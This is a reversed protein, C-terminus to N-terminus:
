AAPGSVLAVLAMGLAMRVATMDNTAHAMIDGTAVQDFFNLPATQLHAFLQHRLNRGVRPATGFILYRWVFRFIGILVAIGVIALAYTLLAADEINGRTLGDVVRKIIRPIFLQLVDVVLLASLGGVFFWIYKRLYPVITRFANM